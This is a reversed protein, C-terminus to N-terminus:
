IYILRNDDTLAPKCVARDDFHHRFEKVDYHEIAADVDEIKEIKPQNIMKQLECSIDM